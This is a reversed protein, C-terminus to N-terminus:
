SSADQFGLNILNNPLGSGFNAGSPFSSSYYKSYDQAPVVPQPLQIHHPVSQGLHQMVAAHLAVIAFTQESGAIYSKFPHGSQEAQHWAAWAAMTQSGGVMTPPTKGLSLFKTMFAAPTYDYILADPLGKAVLAAAAQEEGQVTWDTNGNEVITGGKAKIEKEACPEWQAGYTNGPTGTYMAINKGSQLAVDAMTKGYTCLNTLVDGGLDTGNFKADPITQTATWVTIHDAAAQRVVPLMVDGLDFAGVIVNAGQSIHTRFNSLAQPVVFNANTYTITKVAPERIAMLIDMARVTKYYDNNTDESEAVNITGNPHGVSCPGTTKLCRAVIAEEQATVPKAFIEYAQQAVPPLEGITVGPGFAADLLAQVQASTGYESSSPILSSSSSSSGGSGSTNATNSTSSGSSGCAAVAVATCMVAVLCVAKARLDKMARRQPRPSSPNAV